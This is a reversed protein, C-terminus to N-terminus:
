RAQLFLGFWFSDFWVVSLQLGFDLHGQRIGIAEPTPPKPMSSHPYFLLTKKKKKKQDILIKTPQDWTKMYM